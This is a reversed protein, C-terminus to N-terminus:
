LRTKLRKVAQELGNETLEFMPFIQRIMHISHARYNWREDWGAVPIPNLWVAHKFHRTMRELWALGTESNQHDWDIAGNEMTLEGPSMSADGVVILRYEPGINHLFDYTRIANQWICAPQVYLNEYICNHFYFYKLDKLHSSRQFASFLRSCLAIHPDMSGGSDMVVVIKLNNKRPRDWVIKLRGANRCTADITGELDLEDKAGEHNNTLQRLIRLASEFKRVGLVVDSRYGRYIRDAAVKVASRNGPVGGIRMGKPNFGGQGFKSRGGKGALRLGEDNREREQSKSREELEQRLKQMDVDQLLALEEPTMGEATLGQSLEEMAQEILVDPSEIGKFYNQFALDYNDFHAENKVLIMRALYYFGSLSSSALGKSLAEMLTIWETLSVPVGARKLEYFFSVFM